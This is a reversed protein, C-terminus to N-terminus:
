GQLQLEDTGEHGDRMVRSPGNPHTGLWLEAYTQDEDVDFDSDESQLLLLLCAPLCGAHHCRRRVALTVLRGAGVLIFFFLFADGQATLCWEARTKHKEVKFCRVTRCSITRQIYQQM